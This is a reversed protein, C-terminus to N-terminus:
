LQLLNPLPLRLPGLKRANTHNPEEGVGKGTLLSSRRCVPLSLFLSVKRVPSHLPTPPRPASNYLNYSIMNRDIQVGGHVQVTFFTLSNGGGGGWGLLSDLIDSILTKMVPFLETTEPNWPIKKREQVPFVCRLFFYERNPLTFGGKGALFLKNLSM